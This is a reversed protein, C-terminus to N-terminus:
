IDTKVYKKRKQRRRVLYIALGVISILLLLIPVSIKELYFIIKQWVSLDQTEYYSFPGYTLQVDAVDQARSERAALFNIVASILM